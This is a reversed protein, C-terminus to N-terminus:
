VSVSKAEPGMNYIDATQPEAIDSEVSVKRTAKRPPKPQASM